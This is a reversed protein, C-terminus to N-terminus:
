GRNFNHLTDADMRGLPRQYAWQSLGIPNAAPVLLVEGAIEGRAEAQDPLGMLHLLVLVGPMEDAHRGAQLYVRPGARTM